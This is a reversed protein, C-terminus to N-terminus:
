RGQQWTQPPILFSSSCPRSLPKTAPQNSSFSLHTIRLLRCRGEKTLDRCGWSRWAVGSCVWGGIAAIFNVAEKGDESHDECVAILRNRTGDLTYDAFRQKADAKTLPTPTSGPPQLPQLYARQDSPSHSRKTPRPQNQPHM